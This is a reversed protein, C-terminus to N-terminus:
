GATFMLPLLIFLSHNGVSITLLQELSYGRWRWFSLESPTWSLHLHHIGHLSLSMSHWEPECEDNLTQGKALWIRAWHYALIAVWWWQWSVLISTLICQSCLTLQWRFTEGLKNSFGASKIKCRDQSVGNQAHVESLHSCQVINLKHILCFMLSHVMYHMMTFSVDLPLLLGSIAEQPSLADNLNGAFM